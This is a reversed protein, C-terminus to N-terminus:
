GGRRLEVGPQLHLARRYLTRQARCPQPRGILGRPRTVVLHGGVHEASEVARVHEVLGHQPSQDHREVATAGTGFRERDQRLELAETALLEIRFGLRRRPRELGRDLAPADLAHRMRGGLSEVAWATRRGAFPRRGQGQGERGEDPAAIEDRRYRLLDDIRRAADQRQDARPAHALRPDRDLDRPVDAITELRAGAEDLQRGHRAFAGEDGGDRTRGTDIKGGALIRLLPDQARQLRALHEEHEVVRLM